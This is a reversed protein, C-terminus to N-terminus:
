ILFHFEACDIKEFSAKYKTGDREVSGAGSPQDVGVGANITEIDAAAVSATFIHLTLVMLVSQLSLFCSLFFLFALLTKKDM